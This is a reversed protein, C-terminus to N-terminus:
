IRRSNTRCKSFELVDVKGEVQINSFTLNVDTDRSPGKRKRQLQGLDFQFPITKKKMWSM